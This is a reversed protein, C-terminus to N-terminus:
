GILGVERRLYFPLFHDTLAARRDWSLEQHKPSPWCCAASPLPLCPCLTVPPLSYGAPPWALLPHPEDALWIALGGQQPVGVWWPGGHAGIARAGAGKAPLFAWLTSLPFGAATLRPPPTSSGRVQTLPRPPARCSLSGGVERGASTSLGTWLAQTPSPLCLAAGARGLVARMLANEWVNQTVKPM